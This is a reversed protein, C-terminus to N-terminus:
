EAKKKMVAEFESEFGGNYWSNDGEKVQVVPVKEIVNEAFDGGNLEGDVDTLTVYVNMDNGSFLTTTKSEIKGSKDTYLTDTFELYSKGGSNRYADVVTKIGEVPKGDEDSVTGKVTFDAHPQGYMCMGFNLINCSQFGLLALLGGLLWTM